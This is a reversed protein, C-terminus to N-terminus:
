IKNFYIFFADGPNISHPMLVTKLASPSLKRNVLQLRLESFRCTSTTKTLSIGPRLDMM